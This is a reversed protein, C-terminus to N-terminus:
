RNDRLRRTPNDSLEERLEDVEDELRDIRRVGRRWLLFAVLTPPAGLLAVILLIFLIDTAALSM